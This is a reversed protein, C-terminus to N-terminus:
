NYYVTKLVNNDSTHSCSSSKLLTKSFGKVERRTFIEGTSYDVYKKETVKIRLKKNYLKDLDLNYGERVRLGANLLFSLTFSNMRTNLWFKHYIFGQENEFKCEVYPTGKKSSTGYRLKTIVVNHNGVKLMEKFDTTNVSIEM